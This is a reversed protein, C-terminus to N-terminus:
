RHAHKLKKSRHAPQGVIEALNLLCLFLRAIGPKKM